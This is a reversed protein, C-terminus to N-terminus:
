SGDDLGGSIQSFANDTSVVMISPIKRDTEGISYTATKDKIQQWILDAHGIVLQVQDTDSSLSICGAPIDDEEIRKHLGIWRDSSSTCQPPKGNMIYAIVICKLAETLM